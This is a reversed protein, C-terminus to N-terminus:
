LLANNFHNFIDVENNIFYTVAATISLLIGSRVHDKQIRLPEYNIFAMIALIGMFIFGLFSLWFFYNITYYGM